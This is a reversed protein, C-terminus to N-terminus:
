GLNHGLVKERNVGLVKKALEEMLWEDYDEQYHNQPFEVSYAKVSGMYKQTEESAMFIEAVFKKGHPLLAAYLSVGSTTLGQEEDINVPGDINIFPWHMLLYIASIEKAFQPKVGKDEDALIFGKNEPMDKVAQSIDTITIQEDLVLHEESM